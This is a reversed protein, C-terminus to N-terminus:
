NGVIPLVLPPGAFKHTTLSVQAVYYLTRFHCVTFCSKITIGQASCFLMADVFFFPTGVGGHNSQLAVQM